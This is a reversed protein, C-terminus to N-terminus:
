ILVQPVHGTGRFHQAQLAAVHVALHLRQTDGYFFLRSPVPFRNHQLLASSHSVGSGDASLSFQTVIRHSDAASAGVRM